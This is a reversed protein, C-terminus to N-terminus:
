QVQSMVLDMMLRAVQHRTMAERPALTKATVGSIIKNKLAWAMAKEAYAAISKRDDYRDLISIDAVEPEGM